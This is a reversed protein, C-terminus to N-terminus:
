SDKSGGGKLTEFFARPMLSGYQKFSSWAFVCCIQISFGIVQKISIAEHIIWASMCVVVIDKLNGILIYIVASLYKLFVAIAVNLGFANLINLALFFRWDWIEQLSPQLVFGVDVVLNNFLLVGVLLLGSMPMVVLVTSLPDLKQGKGTLVLAQFITKAAECFSASGQVILGIFSFNLEGEVCSWTACLMVVLISVQTITFKELGAFYAMVYISIINGEKVMQLFAVTCYKYAMNSLVLSIAFCLAIPLIANIYYSMSLDVKKDPDSLAPFLHPQCLLLLGAFISCFICHAIVLVFPYPFHGDQMLYQNTRILATSLTIVTIPLSISFLLDKRTQKQPSLAADEPAAAYGGM